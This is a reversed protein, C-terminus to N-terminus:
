VDSCLIILFIMVLIKVNAKGIKTGPSVPPLSQSEYLLPTNWPVM